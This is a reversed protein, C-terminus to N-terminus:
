RFGGRAKKKMPKKSAHTGRETQSFAIQSTSSAQSSNLSNTTANPQTGAKVLPKTSAKFQSSSNLRAAAAFGSQQLGTKQRKRSSPLSSKPQTSTVMPLSFQSAIGNSDFRSSSYPTDELNVDENDSWHSVLEKLDPALDETLNAFSTEDDYMDTNKKCVSILSLGLDRAIYGSINEGSSKYPELREFFSRLKEFISFGEFDEIVNLQAVDSLVSKSLETFKFGNPFSSYYEMLQGIMSQIEDTSEVLPATYSRSFLSNFFQQRDKMSGNLATSLNDALQQINNAEQSLLQSSTGAETPDERESEMLKFYIQAFLGTDTPKSRDDIDSTETRVENPVEFNYNEDVRLLTTSVERNKTVQYCAFLLDNKSSALSFVLSSVAAQKPHPIFYYPDNVVIPRSASDFSFEVVLAFNRVKSNIMCIFKDPSSTSTIHVLNLSLTLDSDDLHHKWSLVNKFGKSLDIMTIELTTLLFVYQSQAFPKSIDLLKSWAGAVVIGKLSQRVLSMRHISLRSMLYLTSPDKGWVVKKFRSLDAPDYFSSIPFDLKKYPEKQRANKAISFLSFNGKIDVVILKRPEWPNFAVHSFPQGALESTSIVAKRVVKLHFGNDISVQMVHVASDTLVAFTGRASSKMEEPQSETTSIHKIRDPLVVAETFTLSPASTVNESNSSTGLLSVTIVNEAAVGIVIRAYGGYPGVKKLFMTGFLRDIVPDVARSSLCDDKASTGEKLIESPVFFEDGENSTKMPKYTQVSMKSRVNAILEENIDKGPILVTFSTPVPYIYKPLAVRKQPFQLLGSSPQNSVESADTLVATGPIGYSLHVGRKSECPWM